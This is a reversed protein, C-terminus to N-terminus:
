PRLRLWIEGSPRGMRGLSVRSYGTELAVSLFVPNMAAEFTTHVDDREWIM